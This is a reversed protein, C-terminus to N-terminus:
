TAGRTGLARANCTSWRRRRSRSGRAWDVITRLFMRMQCSMTDLKCAIVQWSGIVHWIRLVSALARRRCGVVRAVSGGRSWYSRQAGRGLRVVRSSGVDPLADVVWLSRQSALHRALRGASRARDVRALVPSCVGACPVREPLRAARRALRDLLADPLDDAHWPLRQSALRAPDVPLAVTARGLLPCRAVVRWVVRSARKMRRAARVPAIEM